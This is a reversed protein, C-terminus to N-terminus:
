PRPSLGAAVLGLRTLINTASILYRISGFRADVVTEGDEHTSPRPVYRDLDVNGLQPSNTVLRAMIPIKTNHKLVACQQEV